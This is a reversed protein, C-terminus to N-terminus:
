EDAGDKEADGNSVYWFFDRFYFYLYFYLRMKLFPSQSLIM